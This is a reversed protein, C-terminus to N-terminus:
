PRAVRPINGTFDPWLAMVLILFLALPILVLLYVLRGEWKLHMYNWAVLLAKGLAVSFIVLMATRAALGAVSVVISTGAMLCLAVWIAFYNIKPHLTEQM